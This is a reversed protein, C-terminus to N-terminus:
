YLVNGKEMQRNQPVVCFMYPFTSTLSVLKPSPVYYVELYKNCTLQCLLNGLPKLFFLRNISLAPDVSDIDNHDLSGDRYGM